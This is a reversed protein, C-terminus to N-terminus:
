RYCRRDYAPLTADELCEEVLVVMQHEKRSKLLRMWTWRTANGALATSASHFDM